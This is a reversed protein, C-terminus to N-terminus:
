REVPRVEIEKVEASGLTLTSVVLAALDAPDLYRGRGYPADAGVGTMGRMAPLADGPYISLVRVGRGRLEERLSDAVAKLAHQTAAYQSLGASARFAASSNVFVIHGRTEILLPLLRQTLLYPGRVNVRYQRDFDEMRAELLPRTTVTNAAHILVDLNPHHRRVLEALRTIARDFLFDVEFAEAAGARTRITGAVEELQQPDPAALLVRAGVSGLAMAMARGFQGSAGTVLAVRGTLPQTAM